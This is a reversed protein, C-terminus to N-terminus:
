IKKSNEYLEMLDAKPMYIVYSIVDDRYSFKYDYNVSDIISENLSLGSFSEIEDTLLFYDVDRECAIFCM